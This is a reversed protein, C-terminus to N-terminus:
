TVEAEVQEDQRRLFTTLIWASIMLALAVILITESSLATGVLTLTFLVAWLVNLNENDKM